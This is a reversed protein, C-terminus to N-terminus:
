FEMKPSEDTVQVLFYDIRAGEPLLTAGEPLRPGIYQALIVRDGPRLSINIRHCPIEKNLQKSIVSAMDKHGVYSVPNRNAVLAAVEGITSKRYRLTGQGAVISNFSIANGIYLMVYRWTKKAIMSASKIGIRPTIYGMSILTIYSKKCTSQTLLKKATRTKHAKINISL